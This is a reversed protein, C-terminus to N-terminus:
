LQVSYCWNASEINVNLGKISHALKKGCSDIKSNKDALANEHRKIRTNKSNLMIMRRYCSSDFETVCAGYLDASSVEVAIYSVYM